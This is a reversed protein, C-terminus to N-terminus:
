LILVVSSRTWVRVHTDWVKVIWCWYPYDGVQEKCTEWTISWFYKNFLWQHDKGMNTNRLFKNWRHYLWPTSPNNECNRAILFVVVSQRLIYSSCFWSFQSSDKLNKLVKLIVFHYQEKDWRLAIRTNWPHGSSWSNLSVHYSDCVFYM